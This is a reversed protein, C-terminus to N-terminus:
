RYRVLVGLMLVSKKEFVKRNDPIKELSKKLAKKRTNRVHHALMILIFIFIM